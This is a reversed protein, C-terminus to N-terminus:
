YLNALMLVQQSLTVVLVGWEGEEIGERESCRGEKSKRESSRQATLLWIRTGGM